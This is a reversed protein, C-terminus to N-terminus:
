FEKTVSCEVIFDDAMQSYSFGIKRYTAKCISNIPISVISFEKRDRIHSVKLPNKRVENLHHSFRKLVDDNAYSYSAMMLACFLFTKM